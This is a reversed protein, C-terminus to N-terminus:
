TIELIIEFGQRSVITISRLLARYLFGNLADYAPLRGPTAVRRRPPSLTRKLRPGGIQRGAPAYRSACVVDDGAELRAVM